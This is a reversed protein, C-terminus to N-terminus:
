GNEEHLTSRPGAGRVSVDAAHVTRVTSGADRVLLAGSATVDLAVGAWPPGEAPRVEVPAGLMPARRRWAPLPSEGALLAHYRQEWRALFTALLPVRAVPRGLEVLLSTAPAALPALLDPAINVNLGVGVVVADLRDGIYDSEALIGVLKRGGVQVDNPWKLAPQLVFLQELTEAVAVAAVFPLLAPSVTPPPRLLLSVLLSSGYPAQWRRGLRGRGALQEEAVILTGEPAGARAVARAILNTSDVQGLWRSEAPRGFTTTTLRKILAALLADPM